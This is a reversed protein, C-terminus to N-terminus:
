AGIVTDRKELDVSKSPTFNTMSLKEFFITTSMYLTNNDMIKEKVLDKNM